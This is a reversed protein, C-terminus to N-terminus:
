EATIERDGGGEQSHHRTSFEGEYEVLKLLESIPFHCSNLLMISISIFNLLVQEVLEKNVDKNGEKSSKAAGLEVGSVREAFKLTSLSESYSSVDPNLQVFMLTKAQGGTDNFCVLIM